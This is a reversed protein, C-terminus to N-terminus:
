ADTVAAVFTSVQDSSCTAGCVFLRGDGAAAMTPLGAKAILKMSSGLVFIANGLAYHDHILAFTRHHNALTQVAQDGDPLVLVRYRLTAAMSLGIDADFEQGDASRVRGPTVGILTPRMGASTLQSRTMAISEAKVGEAILIAAAQGPLTL